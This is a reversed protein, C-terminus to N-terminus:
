NIAIRLLYIKVLSGVQWWRLWPGVELSPIPFPFVRDTVVWATSQLSRMRMWPPPGRDQLFWLNSIISWWIVLETIWSDGHIIYKLKQTIPTMPSPDWQGCPVTGIFSSHGSASVLGLQGVLFSNSQYIKTNGKWRFKLFGNVTEHNIPRNM